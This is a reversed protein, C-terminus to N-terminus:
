LIELEGDAIREDEGRIRRQGIGHFTLRVGLLDLNAAAIPIGTEALDCTRQRTAENQRRVAREGARGGGLARRGEGHAGCIGRAM